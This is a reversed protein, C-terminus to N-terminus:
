SATKWLKEFGATLERDGRQTLVAALRQALRANHKYPALAEVVREAVPVRAEAALALLWEFAPESRHAAAASILAARLEDDVVVENWANKLLDLAGPARSEGLALAALERLAGEAHALYPAVFPLSEEPAVSLLASFCEGVIAPEADGALVKSRLLLEAERPNGCAAARVAGLRAAPEPDYLLAAIAVLARPQGTGVLGMACSARVDAATDATGGWVPEMQRLRLGALYFEADDCDLAVLARVIAKKAFCSPDAKAPKDLFRPYAARLAPVLDYLLGDAALRSAKAVVRYHKHALAAALPQSRAERQAPLEDLEALKQEISAEDAAAARKAV